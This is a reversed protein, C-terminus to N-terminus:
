PSSPRYIRYNFECTNGNIHYNLDCSSLVCADFNEGNWTKKCVAAHPCETDDCDLTNAECSLNKIHYGSICNKLTCVNSEMVCEANDPCGDFCSAGEGSVRCNGRGGGLLNNVTFDYGSDCGTPYCANEVYYGAAVDNNQPKFYNKKCDKEGDEDCNCDAYELFCQKLYDDLVFGGLCRVPLCDGYDGTNYNYTKECELGNSDDPCDCKKKDSECSLRDSTYHYGFICYRIRCESSSCTNLFCVSANNFNFDSCTCKNQSLSIECDDAFASSVFFVFLLVIIIINCLTM